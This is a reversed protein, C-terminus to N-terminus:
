LPNSAQYWIEPYAVRVVGFRIPPPTYLAWAQAQDLLREGFHNSKQQPGEEPKPNPKPWRKNVSPVWGCLPALGMYGPGHARGFAGWQQEHQLAKKLTGQELCHLKTPKTFSADNLLFFHIFNCIKCHVKHIKVLDHSHNEAM